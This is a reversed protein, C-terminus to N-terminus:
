LAFILLLALLVVGTALSGVILKIEVPLLPEFAQQALEQKLGPDTM